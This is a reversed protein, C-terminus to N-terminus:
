IDWLNLSLIDPTSVICRPICLVGPHHQHVHNAGLSVSLVAILHNSLGERGQRDAAHSLAVHSEPFKEEM